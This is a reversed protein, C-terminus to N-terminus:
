FSQSQNQTRPGPRACTLCNKRLRCQPVNRGKKLLSDGPQIKTKRNAKKTYLYGDLCLKVGGKNNKILEM